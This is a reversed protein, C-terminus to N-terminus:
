KTVPAKTLYRKLFVLLRISRPGSVMATYLLLPFVLLRFIRQEVALCTGFTASAGLRGRPEISIKLEPQLAAISSRPGLGLNQPGFIGLRM